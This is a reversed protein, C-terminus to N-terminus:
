PWCWECLLRSVVEERRGRWGGTHQEQRFWHNYLSIIREVPHRLMMVYLPTRLQSFPRAQAQDQPANFAGIARAAAYHEYM